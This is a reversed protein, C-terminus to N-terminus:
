APLAQLVDRMAAFRPALFELSDHTLLVVKAHGDLNSRIYDAAADGLAKGTLYQPANLISTAPPPVITGVYSGAWILEQLHPALSSPMWQRPLLGASM